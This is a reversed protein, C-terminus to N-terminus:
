KLTSRPVPDSFLSSEGTNRKQVKPIGKFMGWCWAIQAFYILPFVNIYRYMHKPASWFMRGSLFAAIVPALGLMLWRYNIIKPSRLISQHRVLVESMYQGTLMWHNMIAKFTARNPTHCVLAQPEFYLKYGKKRCRVIWDIDESCNLSEDMEGVSLFVERYFSLNLTPLMHHNEKGSFPLSDRFMGVNDALTWLNERNFTVAGGVIEAGSTLHAQIMRSVWDKVPICDADILLIPDGISQHLGVNRATAANVPKQTPIFRVLADEKVLRPEDTGIVLVEANEMSYSQRRLADLTLHIINSNFNPIIISIM